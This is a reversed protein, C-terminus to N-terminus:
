CKDAASIAVSIVVKQARQAAQQLQHVAATLDLLIQYRQGSNVHHGVAMRQKQGGHQVKIFLRALTLGFTGRSNPQPPPVININVILCLGM